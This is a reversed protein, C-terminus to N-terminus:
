RFYHEEDQFRNPWFDLQKEPINLSKGYNFVETWTSKHPRVKFIKNKFIVILEKDNYLHAYWPANSKMNKQINEIVGGIEQIEVGYIKWDGDQKISFVEFNEPFLPNKFEQDILIGHYM